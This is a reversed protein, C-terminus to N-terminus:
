GADKKIEILEYRNIVADRNKDYEKLVDADVPYGGKAEVTSVVDRLLIKVEATQLKGDRNTDYLAETKTNVKPPTKMWAPLKVEAASAPAPKSTGTAAKPPPGQRNRRDYNILGAWASEILLFSVLVASLLWSTKRFMM